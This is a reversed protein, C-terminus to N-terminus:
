KRNQHGSVVFRSVTSAARGIEHDDNGKQDDDDHRTEAQHQTDIALRDRFCFHALEGDPRLPRPLLRRHGRPGIAELAVELVTEGEPVSQNAPLSRDEPM